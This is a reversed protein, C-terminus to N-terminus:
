READSELHSHLAAETAGVAIRKRDTLIAAQIATGHAVAEEPSVDCNPERGKLEDRLLQRIRAMRSSGGVMVLEDVDDVGVRGAPAAPPKSSGDYFLVYQGDPARKADPNHIMVSDFYPVARPALSVDTPVYPGEPRGSSVAHLVVSNTLWAQLTDNCTMMAAFMHFDGDDDQVVSGGWTASGNVLCLGGRGCQYSEMALTGCQPGTFGVICECRGSTCHGAM